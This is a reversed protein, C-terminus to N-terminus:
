PILKDRELFKGFSDQKIPISELGTYKKPFDTAREILEGRELTTKAEWLPILFGRHTKNNDLYAFGGLHMDLGEELRDREDQNFGLEEVVASKVQEFLYDPGQNLITDVSVLAKGFGSLTNGFTATYKEGRVSCILHKDITTVIAISDVVNALGEFSFGRSYKDQPFATAIHEKYNTRALTLEIKRDKNMFPLKSCRVLDGNTPKPDKDKILAEWRKDLYDKLREDLVIREGPKLCINSPTFNRFNDEPVIIRWGEKQSGYM